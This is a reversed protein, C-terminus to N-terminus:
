KAQKQKMKIKVMIAVVREQTEDDIGRGGALRATARAKTLETPLEALTTHFQESGDGRTKRVWPARQPAHLM